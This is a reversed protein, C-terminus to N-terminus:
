NKVEVTEPPEKYVTKGNKVLFLEGNREMMDMAMSFTAGNPPESKDKAFIEMVIKFLEEFDEKNMGQTDAIKKLSPKKESM